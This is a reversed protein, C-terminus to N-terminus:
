ADESMEQTQRKRRRSERMSQVRACRPSCFKADNRYRGYRSGGDQRSFIRPCTANGCKRYRRDALTHNLLELVSRGYLSARLGVAPILPLTRPAANDRDEVDEPTVVTLFVGMLLARNFEQRLRDTAESTTRPIPWPAQEPWGRGLWLRGDNREFVERRILVLAKLAAIAGVTDKVEEHWGTPPAEHDPLDAAAVEWPDGKLQKLTAGMFGYEREFPLVDEANRAPEIELVRPVLELPLEFAKPSTIDDRAGQGVIVEGFADSSVDYRDFRWWLRPLPIGQALDIAQPPALPGPPSTPFRSPIVM